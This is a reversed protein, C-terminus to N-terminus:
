NADLRLIALWSVFELVREAIVEPLPEAAFDDSHSGVRAILRQLPRVVERESLEQLVYGTQVCGVVFAVEVLVPSRHGVEAM